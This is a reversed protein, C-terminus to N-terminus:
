GRESARHRRRPRQRPRAAAPQPTGDGVVWLEAGLGHCVAEAGVLLTELQRLRVLDGSKLKRGEGPYAGERVSPQVIVVRRDYRQGVKRLAALMRDRDSRRGDHWVLRGVQERGVPDQWQGLIIPDLYRLNKVAQGTVVEYDAVSIGRDPKKSGSGKVHILSLRPPRTRDDFHIFDAKEMAGDDCALWGRQRHGGEVPSPWTNWVWCFLSKKKGIADPDFQKRVKGEKGKVSKTPKEESVHIETFDLFKWGRFSVDRFRPAYLVGDSVTHGSEYRVQLWRRHRCVEVTEDLMEPDAPTADEPDASVEYGVRGPDSVDVHVKLRGVPEGDLSVAAVLDAGDAPTIDFSAHYSWRELRERVEADDPEEGLVEPAIISMDFAERVKAAGSVPPALVPLPADDSLHERETAELRTLVGVVSERFDKWSASPGTWVRSRRPSVGVPVPRAGLEAVCRAATFYYSQDDLPDLADRLNLGTLVKSDAKVSTRRHIGNLWLTRAEGKAFAANLVGVEIKELASLGTEGDGGFRRTVAPIRSPDTLVIAVHRNRVCVLALHNLVDKVDEDTRWRPAREEKYHIFGATLGRDNLPGGRTVLTRATRPGETGLIDAIDGLIQAVLDAGDRGRKVRALTLSTYPRLSALGDAM